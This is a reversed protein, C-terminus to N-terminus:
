RVEETSGFRGTPRAFGENRSVHQRWEILALVAVVVLLLAGGGVQLQTFGWAGFAQPLAGSRFAEVATAGGLYVAAAVLAAQGDYRRRRAVLWFAMAAGACVLVLYIQFAHVDASWDGVGVLGSRLHLRHAQSGPPYSVCLGASCAVGYCCGNLFCGIRAIVIGLLCAPALQDAVRGLNLRFLWALLPASVLLAALAGPAHLGDWIRLVEFPRDQFYGLDWRNYVYHARGGAFVLVALLAMGFLVRWLALRQARFVRVTAVTAASAVALALFVAHTRLAVGLVAIEPYM